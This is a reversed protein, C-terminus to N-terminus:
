INIIALFDAGIYSRISHEKPKQSDVLPSLTGITQGIVVEWPKSKGLIVCILNKLNKINKHRGRDAAKIVSNLLEADKHSTHEDLWTQAKTQFDEWTADMSRLVEDTLLLNEVAYCNLRFRRIPGVPQLPEYEVGDGDRLSYGIPNDYIAELMKATFTELESFESVTNAICPFLRIKGQSSRSAQQWIREDDEGEIILIPDDTIIKSLPHAFFPGIKSLEKSAKTIILNRNNFNKVGIGVHESRSLASIITTSHTAIFITIADISDVHREIKEILLNILRFQMDPHLHVDPEDIILINNKTKDLNLFYFMIETALSIAESEGSSLNEPSIAEDDFNKFILDGSDHSQIISSNILIKNIPDLFESYFDVDSNRINRDHQMKRLFVTEMTRLRIAAEQKFTEAQNKERSNQFYRPNRRINDDLSPNYQFHGAREPSIYTMKIEGNSECIQVLERLMRSKGSGNRGVIVNIPSIGEIVLGNQEFRQDRTM